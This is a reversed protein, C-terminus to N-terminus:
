NFLKQINKFLKEIGSNNMQELYNDILDADFNEQLLGKIERKTKTIGQTAYFRIIGERLANGVKKDRQEFIERMVYLAPNQSLETKSKPYMNIIASMTNPPPNFNEKEVDCIYEGKFYCRFLLLLKSIKQTAKEDAFKGFTKGVLLTISEIGTLCKVKELFPETIQYPLSSVIKNAIPIQADLFNQFVIEINDYDTKLKLLEDKTKKDIEYAIVGKAKQAIKKTIRGDGPGVEIVIDNKNLKASSVLVDQIKENELYHQGFSIIGKDM